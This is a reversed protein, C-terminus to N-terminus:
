LVLALLPYQDECLLDCYLLVLNITSKTRSKFTEDTAAVIKFHTQFPFKQGTAMSVLRCVGAKVAFTAGRKKKEKM